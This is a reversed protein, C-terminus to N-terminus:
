PRWTLDLVGSIDAGRTSAWVNEVLAFAVSVTRVPVVTVGALLYFTPGDVVDIGTHALAATHASYQLQVSVSSALRQAIGLQLAGHPRTALGMSTFTGGPVAGDAEVWLATSGRTWGATVGAALAPDGTGDPFRGTPLGLAARLSVAPRLGDQAQVLTKVGLSMDAVTGDDGVWDLGTGEKYRMIQIRGQRPPPGLRLPNVRAFIGEVAKIPRTLWGEYDIAGPVVLQLETRQAVGYRVVLTPQATEVNVDVMLSPGWGRLITSSYYTRMSIELAGPRVTEPAEFALQLFPKLLASPELWPIPRLPAAEARSLAPALLVLIAALTRCHM